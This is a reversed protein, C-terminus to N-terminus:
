GASDCSGADAADCSGDSGDGADSGDASDAADSSGGADAADSAGSDVGDGAGYPPVYGSDSSDTSSPIEEPALAFAPSVGAATGSSHNSFFERGIFFPLVFAFLSLTVKVSSEFTKKIFTLM